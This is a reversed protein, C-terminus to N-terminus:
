AGQGEKRVAVAAVRAEPLDAPLFVEFTAGQGPGKSTAVLTGHHAKAIARAFFLGLGLGSETQM